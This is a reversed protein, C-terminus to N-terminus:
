VDLIVEAVVGNGRPRVSLGHFTAAKIRSPPGALGVGACDLRVRRETAEIATVAAPAWRETEALFILENVLDVLLAERDVAALEITRGAASGAVGGERALEAGVARVTETLLDSWSGAEVRLALESVHDIFEHHATMPIDVEHFTFRSVPSLRPLVLRHL